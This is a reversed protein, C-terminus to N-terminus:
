CLPLQTPEEAFGDGVQLSDDDKGGDVGQCGNGYFPKQYMYEM